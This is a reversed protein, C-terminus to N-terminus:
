ASKQGYERSLDPGAPSWPRSWCAVGVLVGAVLAEVLPEVQELRRGCRPSSVFLTPPTPESRLPWGAVLPEVQELRRGCRSPGECAPLPVRQLSGVGGM